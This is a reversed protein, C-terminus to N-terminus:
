NREKFRSKYNTTAFQLLEPNLKNGTINFLESLYTVKTSLRYADCTKTTLPHKIESTIENEM